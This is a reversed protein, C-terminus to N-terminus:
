PHPAHEPFDYFMKWIMGEIVPKMLDPDVLAWSIDFATWSPRVVAKTEADVIDVLITGEACQIIRAGDTPVPRTYGRVRMRKTYM